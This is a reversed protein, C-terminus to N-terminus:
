RPPPREGSNAVLCRGPAVVAAEFAAGLWYIRSIRRRLVCPVEVGIVGLGISIAM